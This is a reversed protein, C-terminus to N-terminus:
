GQYWPEGKPQEDERRPQQQTQIAITWERFRDTLEKLLATHAEVNKAYVLDSKAREEEAKALRIFGMILQNPWAPSEEIFELHEPHSLDTLATLGLAPKYYDIKFRPMPGGVPFARHEAVLDPLPFNPAEKETIAGGVFLAYTTEDRM